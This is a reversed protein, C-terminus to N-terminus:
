SRKIQSKGWLTPATSQKLLSYALSAARAGSGVASTIQEISYKDLFDLKSRKTIIYRFMETVISPYKGFQRIMIRSENFYEKSTDNQLRAPDIGMIAFYKIITKDKILFNLNSVFKFLFKIPNLIIPKKRSKKVIRVTKKSGSKKKLYITEDHGM